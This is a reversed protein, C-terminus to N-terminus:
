RYVVLANERARLPPWRAGAETLVDLNRFKSRVGETSRGLFRLLYVEQFTTCGFNAFDDM